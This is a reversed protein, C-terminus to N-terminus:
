SASKICLVTIYRIHGYVVFGRQPPLVIRKYSRLKIIQKGVIQEFAFLTGVCINVM